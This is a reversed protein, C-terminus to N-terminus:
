APSIPLDAASFPLPLLTCIDMRYIQSLTLDACLVTVNRQPGGTVDFIRQRCGGCPTVPRGPGTSQPDGGVVAIMDFDRVGATVAAALAAAEACVGLPFSSSEFFTGTYCDGNAAQVAAGVHFRSVPNLARSAIERARELLRKEARPLESPSVTPDLM